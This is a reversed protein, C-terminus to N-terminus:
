SHHVVEPANHYQPIRLSSEKRSSREDSEQTGEGDREKGRSMAAHNGEYMCYLDGERLPQINRKM